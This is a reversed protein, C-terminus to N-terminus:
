LLRDRIGLGVVNDMIRSRPELGVVEQVRRRLVPRRVEVVLVRVLVLVQIFVLQAQGLLCRVQVLPRSMLLIM